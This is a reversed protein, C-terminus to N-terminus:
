LAGPSPNVNTVADSLPLDVAGVTDGAVSRLAVYKVVRTPANIEGVSPPAAVNISLGSKYEVLASTKV